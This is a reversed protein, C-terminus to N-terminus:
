LRFRNVATLGFTAPALSRGNNRDQALPRIQCAIRQLDDIYGADARDTLRGENPRLILRTEKQGDASKNARFGPGIVVHHDAFGFIYSLLLEVRCWAREHFDVTDFCVLRECCAIWLPLMSISEDTLARNFCCYDIWYFIEPYFGHKRQVWDRRWKSFEILANAKTSNKDDPHSKGMDCSPQLWRHSFMHIEVMPAGFRDVASIADEASLSDHSPIHGAEELRRWHLLQMPPGLTNAYAILHRRDYHRGSNRLPPESLANLVQAYSPM